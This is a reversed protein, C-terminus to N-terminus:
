HADGMQSGYLGREGVSQPINVSFFFPKDFQEPKIAMWTKDDKQYLTFYGAIEKADKVVDKFPKPAAAAAAPPAGAPAAGANGPPAAPAQAQAAGAALAAALAAVILRSKPHFM